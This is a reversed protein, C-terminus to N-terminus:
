PESKTNYMGQTEVFTHCIDLRRIDYLTAESGYFDQKHWRNVGKNQWYISKQFTLFSLLQYLKISFVKVILLFM